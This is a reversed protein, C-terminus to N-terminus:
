KEEWGAQQMCEIQQRAERRSDATAAASAVHKSGLAASTDGPDWQAPAGAICDRYMLMAEDDPRQVRSDACGLCTGAVLTIMAANRLRNM